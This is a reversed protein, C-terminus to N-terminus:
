FLDGKDLSKKNYSEKVTTKLKGKNITIKVPWSWQHLTGGMDIEEFSGFEKLNQKYNNTAKIAISISPNKPLEDLLSQQKQILARCEEISTLQRCAEQTQACIRNIEKRIQKEPQPSNKETKKNPKPKKAAM